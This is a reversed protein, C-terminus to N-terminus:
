NMVEERDEGEDDNDSDSSLSSWDSINKFQLPSKQSVKDSDLGFSGSRDFNTRIKEKTLSWFETELNKSRWNYTGIELKSM